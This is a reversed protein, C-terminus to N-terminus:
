AQKARGQHRAHCCLQAKVDLIPSLINGNRSAKRAAVERVIHLSRGTPILIQGLTVWISTIQAVYLCSCFNAGTKVVVFWRIKTVIEANEFKVDTIM